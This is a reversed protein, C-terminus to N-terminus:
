LENFLIHKNQLTRLYTYRQTMLCCTIVILVIFIHFKIM